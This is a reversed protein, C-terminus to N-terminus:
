FQGIFKEFDDWIGEFLHSVGSINKDQIKAEYFRSVFYVLTCQSM